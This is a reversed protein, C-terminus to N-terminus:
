EKVAGQTLGSVIYKQVTFFMVTVPILTVACAAMMQGWNVEYKQVFNILGVPITKNADRNIMMISYFLENWCGTFAFVFVAVIGPAMIPLVVKVVGKIRSCGDIMAAEELTVPIGKFFSSMTILCFPINAVTYSIILASLTDILKLRSYLVFMPIIATILPIMQSILFIVMMLSKGRFKYRALAYGGLVSVVIVIVSASVTVITSNKLYVGFNNQKFAAIYNEVTPERPIFTMSDYIEIRDKFSTNVIWYFPFLTLALFLLLLTIKLLTFLNKKLKAM